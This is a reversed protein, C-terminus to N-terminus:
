RKFYYEKGADGQLLALNDDEASLISWVKTSNDVRVIITSNDEGLEWKGKEKVGFMSVKYTGNKCFEFYSGDMLESVMERQTDPLKEATKKMDLLWKGAIQGKTVVQKKIAKPAEIQKDEEDVAVRELIMAGDGSGMKIILENDSVEVLDIEEGAGKNSMLQITKRDDSLTYKGEETKGMMFVKHNGKDDFYLTMESFFMELMKLGQADIKEKEHVDKYKWKGVLKDSQANLNFTIAFLLTALILKLNM